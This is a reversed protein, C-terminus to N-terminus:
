SAILGLPVTSTNRTLCIIVVQSKGPLSLTGPGRGGGGGRSGAHVYLEGVYRRTNKRSM